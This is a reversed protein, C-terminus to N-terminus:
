TKDKWNNYSNKIKISVEINYMCHYSPWSLDMAQIKYQMCESDYNDHQTYVYVWMTMNGAVYTFKSNYITASNM